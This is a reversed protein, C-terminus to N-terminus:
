YGLDSFYRKNEEPTISLEQRLDNLMIQPRQDIYSRFQDLNREWQEYSMQPWRQCNLKMEPKITNVMQDLVAKANQPTFTSHLHLSLRELFLRRFEKNPLLAAIIVNYRDTRDGDNRLFFQSKPGKSCGREWSTDIDNFVWHWKGDSSKDDSRVICDNDVDSNIAYIEGLKYDILSTLEVKSAVYRFSEDKTMDHSRLYAILSNYQEKTGETPYLTELMTISKPSVNLNRAAFDKDMKERLYYLGFYEANIYLAVPRYKRVLLEPSNAKMLSTFFEDRVMVRNWDESGSRFVLKKLDLVKGDDFFDYKVSPSGYYGDFNVKISKKAFLTFGGVIGLKCDESFGKKGDLFEIHARKWIGSWYEDGKPFYTTSDLVLSYLGTGPAFFDAYSVVVNVVPLTHEVNLIYTATLTKSKLTNESGETFARLVTNKKILISDEYVASGSSPLSGDLTYHVKAGNGDLKIHMADAKSYVGPSTLLEPQSAIFRYYPSSNESGRTPRDFFFFGKEGDRRGVSVGAYTLSTMCASVGDVFKGKRTLLLPEGATLKFNAWNENRSSFRKGATQVVFTQGPDLKIAPLKWGESKKKDSLRYEQLDISSSSVNKLEIWNSSSKFSRVMVEWILLGGVRQDSILHNYLEYGEEDNEFGPTPFCSKVMSGDTDRRLVWDAGLESYEVESLKTDKNSILQVRGKHEPLKFNTHLEKGQEAISKGDAFILLCEGSKLTVAPFYWRITELFTTDSDERKSKNKSDKVYINESVNKRSSELLLSYDKLSISTDSVNKIEKWDALDGSQTLIGTKNSAQIENIVLRLNFQDDEEFKTKSCSVTLVVLGLAGLLLSSFKKVFRCKGHIFINERLTSLFKNDIFRM